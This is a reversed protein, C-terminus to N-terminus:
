ILSKITMIYIIYILVFYYYKITYQYKYLM